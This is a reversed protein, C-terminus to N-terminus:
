QKREKEYFPKGYSDPFLWLCLHDVVALTTSVAFVTGLAVVWFDLANM